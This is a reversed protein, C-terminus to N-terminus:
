KIDGEASETKQDRPVLDPALERLMRQAKVKGRSSHQRETGWKVDKLTARERPNYGDAELGISARYVPAMAQLSEIIRRTNEDSVVKQHPLESPSTVLESASDDIDPRLGLRALLARGNMQKRILTCAMNLVTQRFFAEPHRLRGRQAAELVVAMAAHTVDRADEYGLKLRSCAAIGSKWNGLYFESFLTPDALPHTDSM